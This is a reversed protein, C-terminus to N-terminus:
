DSTPEWTLDPDYSQVADVLEGTREGLDKQFVIGQQNVLFTMVGSNGWNAPWAMFAFGRTLRGEDDLYSRAGGPASAGQATLLRYFYGHYPVLEAAGARYGEATAQALLPGMPSQREDEGVPWYLGDHRGESSLLHQAYAPPNGDRREAAYERQAVVLAHLTALTSLENRGV